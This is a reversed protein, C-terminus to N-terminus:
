PASHQRLLVRYSSARFYTGGHIPLAEVDLPAEHLWASDDAIFRLTGFRIEDGILM